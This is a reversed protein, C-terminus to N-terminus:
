QGPEEGAPKKKSLIIEVRRNEARSRLDTNPKLPQYYSYGSVYFREAPITMQEILFRAVTCARFASLEWNTAFQESHIPVDDTHGVVNIVDDTKRIVAAVERLSMRAQPKLDARGTDFLLDAPLVIRVAKDEMLKIEDFEKLRELRLTEMPRDLSTMMELRFESRGEPVQKKEGPAAKTKEDEIPASQTKGAAGYRFDRSAAQYIYLVAFLIFMTMMIDSWAVSWHVRRPKRLQFFLGEDGHMPFCDFTGAMSGTQGDGSSVQPIETDEKRPHKDMSEFGFLDRKKYVLRNPDFFRTALDREQEEQVM